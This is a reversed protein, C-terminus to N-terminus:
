VVSNLYCTTGENMLGKFNNYKKVESAEEKSKDDPTIMEDKGQSGEPTASKPAAKPKPVLGM